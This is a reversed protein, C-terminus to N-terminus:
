PEGSSYEPVDPPDELLIIDTEEEEDFNTREKGKAKAKAPRIAKWGSKAFATKDWTKTKRMREGTSQTRRTARSKTPSPATGGWLTSQVTRSATRVFTASSNSPGPIGHALVNDIEELDDLDFVEGFPDSNQRSPSPAPAPAHVSPANHMSSFSRPSRPLGVGLASIRTSPQQKTELAAVQDLLESDLTDDFYDTDSMAPIALHGFITVTPTRLPHRLVVEPYRQRWM